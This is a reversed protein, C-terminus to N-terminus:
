LWLVHLMAYADGIGGGRPKAAGCCTPQPQWPCHRWRPSRLHLTGFLTRVVMTGADKHRRARGCCPCAVQEALCTRVQEDIVIEQVRQLLNKAEALQLGLTDIRLDGRELNAVEHVVAPGDDDSDIVVQIRVRM